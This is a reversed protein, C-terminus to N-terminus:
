DKLVNNVLTGLLRVLWIVLIKNEKYM